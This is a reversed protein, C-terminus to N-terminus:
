LEYKRFRNRTRRIARQKRYVDEKKSEIDALIFAEDAERQYIQYKEYSQKYTEDTTQNFLQEFIRAKIYKRIYERFRGAEDDPILQNSYDDYAESYYNLYVLGECFTTVMKNSRIDYSDECVANYNACYLDQPCSKEINGPTLLNVRRFVFAVQETTKYIAKIMDPFECETCLDCYIDPADMRTTILNATAPTIQQYISSPSQYNIGSTQCSWAERVYKFDDPLRAEFDKIYLLANSIPYSGRGLKLLCDNTWIPFLTTDVANTDFYSKLELKLRAFTPEPSIFPYNYYYSM